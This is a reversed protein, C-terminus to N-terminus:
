EYQGLQYKMDKIKQLKFNDQQENIQSHVEISKKIIDKKLHDTEVYLDDMFKDLVSKLYIIKEKM